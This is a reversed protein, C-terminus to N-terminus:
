IRKEFIRYRKYQQAGLAKMANNIADNRELTWGFEGAKYKHQGRLFTEAYLLADLGRGQFEPLIGMAVLRMRKPKGLLVKALGYLRGGTGKMAENIDPLTVTFAAAKGDVEAILCLDKDAVQGLQSALHQIEHETWPVFGWNKDWAANYIGRLIPLEAALAKKSGLAIKRLNVKLNRKVREAIRTVRDPLGDEVTMRWAFTDESKVYGAGEIFGAYTPPNYVMMVVPPDDFNEILVGMMDNQSLKSPGKVLNLNRTKGWTEVTSLLQKAVGASEAEFCAFLVCAESHFENYSTDHIAAIRGVVRGNELALFYDSVAHEFFPNKKQSQDLDEWEQWLLQPVWTPHNKYLNYPYEIFRRLDAKNSVKQIDAM